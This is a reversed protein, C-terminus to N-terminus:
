HIILNFTSNATNCMGVSFIDPVNLLWTFGHKDFYCIEILILDTAFICTLVFRFM